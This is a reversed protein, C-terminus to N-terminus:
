EPEGGRGHPREIKEYWAHAFARVAREIPIHPRDPCLEIYKVVEQLICVVQLQGDGDGMLGADALERITHLIARRAAPDSM